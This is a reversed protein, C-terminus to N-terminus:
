SKPARNLGTLTGHVCFVEVQQGRRYGAVPPSSPTFTCTLAPRGADRLTLSTGTLATIRGRGWTTRDQWRTSKPARGILHLAGGRCIYRVHVGPRYGSLLPSWKTRRCHTLAPSKGQARLRAETAPSVGFSIWRTTIRHITAGGGIVNTRGFDNLAVRRGASDIGAISELSGQAPLASLVFGRRPTLTLRRGGAFTVVVHAISAGTRGYLVRPSGSSRFVGIEM